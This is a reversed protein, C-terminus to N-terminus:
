EAFCIEFWCGYVRDFECVVIGFVSRQQKEFPSYLDKAKMWM